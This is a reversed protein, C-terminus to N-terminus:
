RRDLSTLRIVRITQVDLDDSEIYAMLGDPGFTAPIRLGEAPLTGIYYGEPTMLDTPGDGGGGPGTRAIWIRDEPDVALNAVVPIEEAFIMTEIQRSMMERMQDQIGAALDGMPGAMRVRFGGGSSEDLAESRRSREAEMISETVPEPGLPREITGAVSGDMAILKVSYAVSDVVAVRGDSLVGIHLGPGFARMRNMRMELSRNGREDEASVEEASETPPLNWARYLVGKDTGDLSFVDIDRRHDEEEPPQGSDDGPSAIRIRSGGTSLLRGDSLPLLMQGPAGLALDIPVSESFQGERDFIELAGPLSFDFVVTRGDRLVAISSPQQFEGPGEGSSGVTRLLNGAPDVVVVQRSGEDLIHLNGDADFTVSAIRGFTEWDEGALAGVAYVEETAAALMADADPAAAPGMAQDCAVFLACSLALLSHTHRM